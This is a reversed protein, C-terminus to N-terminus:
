GLGLSNTMTLSGMRGLWGAGPGWMEIGVWRGWSM